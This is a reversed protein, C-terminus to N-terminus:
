TEAVRLAAQRTQSMPYNLSGANAVKKELLFGTVMEKSVPEM